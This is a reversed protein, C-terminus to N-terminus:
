AFGKQELQQKRCIVFKGIAEQFGISTPFLGSIYSPLVQNYKVELIIGQQEQATMGFCDKSFFDRYGLSTRLQTDFTIRVTGVKQIYAEREYAVIVAPRMQSCRTELYFDKLLANETDALFDFNSEILLDAQQRTIRTSEKLMYAGVKTKREFKILADSRNYIRLRYKKRKYIGAEKDSFSSGNFDDFYLSRVNYGAGGQMNPDRSLTIALKRQLIRYDLPSVEYKLEHRLQPKADLEM